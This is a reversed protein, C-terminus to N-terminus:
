CYAPHSREQRGLKSVLTTLHESLLIVRYEATDGGETSNSMNGFQDKAEAMSVIAKKHARWLQTLNERSTGFLMRCSISLDRKPKRNSLGGGNETSSIQIM